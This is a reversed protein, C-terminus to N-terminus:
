YRLQPILSLAPGQVTESAGYISNSNAANFVIDSAVAYATANQHSAVNNSVNVVGTSIAGYSNWYIAAPTGNANFTDGHMWGTINPLGPKLLATTDGGQIVRGRYDPLVMTTSGDGVGYKWPENTPDSTWLDHDTAFQALRPYDARNVTAGNAKVHGPALYPRYFVYGVFYDEIATKILSLKEAAESASGAAASASGAAQTASNAAKTASNAAATASGAASSASASAGSASTQASSKSQEASSASDAAETASTSAQLASDAANVAATNAEDAKQTVTQSLLKVDESVIPNGDADSTIGSAEIEKQIVDFNNMIYDIVGVNDKTALPTKKGYTGDRIITDNADRLEGYQFAQPKM